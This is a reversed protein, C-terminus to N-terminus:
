FSLKGNHIKFVIYLKGNIRWAEGLCFVPMVPFEEGKILPVALYTMEDECRVLVEKCASFLRRFEGEELYAGPETERVWNAADVRVQASKPLKNGNTDEVIAFGSIEGIGMERLASSTFTKGYTYGGKKPMMVGLPIVQTGCVAALRFPTKADVEKVDATVMFRIGLKEIRANGINKGNYNVLYEACINEM